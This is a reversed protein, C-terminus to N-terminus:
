VHILTFICLKEAFGDVGQHHYSLRGAAMKYSHFGQYTLLALLETLPFKHCITKGTFQVHAPILGCCTVLASGGESSLRLGYDSFM